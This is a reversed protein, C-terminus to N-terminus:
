SNENIRKFRKYTRTTPEKAHCKRCLTRANSMEFILEPHTSKALIHDVQLPNFKSGTHGCKVCKKNDRALVKARFELYAPTHYVANETANRYKIKQEKNIIKYVIYIAINLKEAIEKPKAGNKHMFMVLNNKVLFKRM